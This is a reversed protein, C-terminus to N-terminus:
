AGPPPISGDTQAVLPQPAPPTATESPVPVAKQTEDSETDETDKPAKARQAKAIKRHANDAREGELVDRKLVDEALIARIEEIEIRVGPSLRRLERRIVTLVPDSLIMAGLFFRSMAQRKLHYEELVSRTLGEKALLYLSELDGDAKPNLALFDFEEVLDQGIPQGFSVRYIRWHIGNTLAVWEIGQNAAYDVAQKLHPEKLESGIAKCEILLRIKSDLKIALDCYTGRIALESTVESYKDYGFVADLMDTVIIVTDSENVDRSKASILVPQFRKIGVALRDAVKNPISAM